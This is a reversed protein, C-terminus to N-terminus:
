QARICLRPATTDACFPPSVRYGSTSNEKTRGAVEAVHMKLSDRMEQSPVFTLCTETGRNQSIKLLNCLLRNGLRSCTKTKTLDLDSSEREISASAHPISLLAKAFRSLLPFSQQGSVDCM